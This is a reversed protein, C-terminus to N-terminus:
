LQAEVLDPIRTSITMANRYKDNDIFASLVFATCRRKMVNALYELAPRINTTKSQPRFDILERIIYLIHKRGKKPPIFKEIRDSFFIVGIKDNNQMASFALIAASEAVMDSRLQKLTGFGLSESVDAVLRM